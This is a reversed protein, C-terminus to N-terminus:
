AAGGPPLVAKGGMCGCGPWRPTMEIWGTTGTTGTIGDAGLAGDRGLM